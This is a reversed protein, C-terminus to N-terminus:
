GDKRNTYVKAPIFKACMWSFDSFLRLLTKRGLKFWCLIRSSLSLVQKKRGYKGVDTRAIKSRMESKKKKM